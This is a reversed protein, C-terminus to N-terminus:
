SYVSDPNGLSATFVARQVFSVKESQICRTHNTPGFITQVIPNTESSKARKVGSLTASVSDEKFLDTLNAETQM